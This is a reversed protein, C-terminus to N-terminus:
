FMYMIIRRTYVQVKWSIDSINNFTANFVIFWFCVGESSVNIYDIKFSLMFIYIDFKTRM